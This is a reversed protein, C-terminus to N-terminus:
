WFRSLSTNADTPVVKSQSYVIKSQRWFIINHKVIKDQQEFKIILHPSSINTPLGEAAPSYIPKTTLSNLILNWRCYFHFRDQLITSVGEYSNEVCSQVGCPWFVILRPLIFTPQTPPIHLLLQSLIDPHLPPASLIQFSSPPALPGHQSTSPVSSFTDPKSFLPPRDM